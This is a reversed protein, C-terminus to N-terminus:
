ARRGAAQDIGVARGFARAASLAVRRRHPRSARADGCRAGGRGDGRDRAGFADKDFAATEGRQATSAIDQDMGSDIIVSGAPGDLQFSTRVRAFDKNAGGAQVAIFPMTDRGVIEIRIDNPLQAADGSVLQRWTAIDTKYASTEPVSGDAVYYWFFGAGIVLVVLAANGLRYLLNM